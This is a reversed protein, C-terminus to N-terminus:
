AQVEGNENEVKIWLPNRRELLANMGEQAEVGVRIKSIKDCIFHRLSASQISESQSLYVVNGILKKASQAAHPGAKLFNKVMMDCTDNLRDKDSVVQHILGIEYARHASMRMGNLFYSRAHTEGIKAIVFPSIVAPLLGLTVETFGFEAREVAIAYDCCAVLGSGGGLAPGNIKAIVPRSFSNITDFMDHLKQADQYNEETSYDKMKKMWNLDAGACFSKGEGTLVAVRVASENELDKFLKTVELIMEDNFANHIEPRNLTIYAVGNQSIVSKVLEM